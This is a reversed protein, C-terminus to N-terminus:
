QVLVSGASGHITCSYAFTGATGFTRSFTGGTLNASATDAFTVNHAIGGSNWTWTVTTGVPVPVYLDAGGHGTCDNSGGPEGHGGKYTREIRFDALTNIGEQARLYVSGGDGGDGGDPGGFPVFKERRFSASGRGGNGAQVKCKAEDVFKM